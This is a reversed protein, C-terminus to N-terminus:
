KEVQEKFSQEKVKFEKLNHTFLSLFVELHQPKIDEIEKGDSGDYGTEMMSYQYSESTLSWENYPEVELGEKEWRFPPQVSNSLKAHLNYDDGAGEYSFCIDFEVRSYKEEYPGYKIVSLSISSPNQYDLTFAEEAYPNDSGEKQRYGRLGKFLDGIPSDMIGQYVEQRNSNPIEVGTTKWVSTHVTADLLLENGLYALNSFLEQKRTQEVDLPTNNKREM